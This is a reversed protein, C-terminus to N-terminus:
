GHRNRLLELGVRHGRGRGYGSQTLGPWQLGDVGCSSARDRIGIVTPEV